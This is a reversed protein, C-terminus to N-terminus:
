GFVGAVQCGPTVGTPSAAVSETTEATNAEPSLEGFLVVDRRRSSSRGAVLLMSGTVAVLRSGFMM